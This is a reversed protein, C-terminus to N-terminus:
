NCTQTAVTKSITVPVQSGFERKPLSEEKMKNKEKRIEKKVEKQDKKIKKRDKKIEM